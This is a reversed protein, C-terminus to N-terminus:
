LCVFAALGAAAGLAAGGGVLLMFRNAMSPLAPAAAIPVAEYIAEAHADEDDDDSDIEIAAVPSPMSPQRLQAERAERLLDREIEALAAEATATAVAEAHEIHPDAPADDELLAPAAVAPVAAAAAVSKKPRPM